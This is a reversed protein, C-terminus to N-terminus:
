GTCSNVEDVFAKAVKTIQDYDENKVLDKPCLASGAGVAVVGVKFWDALNDKNVGGTPMVPIDPFPGKLDKIYNPGALRGPFIKIIDAGLQYAHFVESPTFCGVMSLLGSNVFAETLAIDFMPSVVFKAGNELAEEVQEIKTLTGMGVLIEDEYKEDLAKVVAAANPTSYTVEIGKVGGAVLADVAKLTKEESPGRIVALLGLAKVHDFILQKNM